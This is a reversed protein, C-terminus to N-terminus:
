FPIEDDLNFNNKKYSPKLDSTEHNIAPQSVRNERGDMLMLDGRFKPVVVSTTIRDNGQKDKWKKTQIQGEIYVTSGKKLFREALEGLKDNLIEIKHWETKEKRENSKKDDWFESTAISFTVVTFTPFKQVEPDTGLKGVLIVKNISTSM